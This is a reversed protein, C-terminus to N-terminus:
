LLDKSNFLKAEVDARYAPDSNYRPDAIARSLEAHSRFVDKATSPARGTVLPAEFGEASKYRNNLAEVAFRLAPLNGSNAVANFANIDDQPLNKGAWQLMSNYGDEGGAIEKVKVVEAAEISQAQQAQANKSYHEIYANILDKSDMKSLEEITEESIDGAAYEESARSLIEPTASEEEVPEETPVEETAETPEESPAEEETPEGSSMKKQLEKYAKLLDDQSRFKGDILGNEADVKEFKRATDEAEMAAIREGQELASLEAAKQAESMGESPDFTTTAM